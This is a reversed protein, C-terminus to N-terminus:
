MRPRPCNRGGSVKRVKLSKSASSLYIIEYQSPRHEFVQLGVFWSKAGLSRHISPGDMNNINPFASHRRGGRPRVLYVYTCRARISNELTLEVGDVASHLLGYKLCVFLITTKVNGGSINACYIAAFYRHM